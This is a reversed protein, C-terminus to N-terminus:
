LRMRKAHYVPDETCIFCGTGLEFGAINNTRPLIRLMLHYPLSEDVHGDMLLINYDIGKYCREYAKTVESLSQALATIQFDSLNKFNGTHIKPIIWTEHNVMPKPPAFVVWEENEFILYNDELQNLFSCIPCTGLGELQQSMKEYHWAKLPPIKELAVIQWHSHAISAGASAGQNKFLQIMQIRSDLSLQQLRNQMVELLARWHVLSFNQMQQSHFATDIIVDHYGYEELDPHCLPFKNNVVRIVDDAVKKEIWIKEIQDVNKLCFPCLTEEDQAITPRAERKPAFLSGLGLLEGIAIGMNKRGKKNEKKAKTLSKGSKL